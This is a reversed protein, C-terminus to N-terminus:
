PRYLLKVVTFRLARAPLILARQLSFEIGSVRLSSHPERGPVSVGIICLTEHRCMRMKNRSQRLRLVSRQCGSKVEEM